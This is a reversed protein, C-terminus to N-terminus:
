EILFDEILQSALEYHDRNWLHGVEEIMEAKLNLDLKLLEKIIKPSPKTATIDNSGLIILIPQKIKKLEKKKLKKPQLKSIIKSGTMARLLLKYLKDNDDVLGAASDQLFKKKIMVNNSITARIVKFIYSLRVDCITAAPATLILKNVRDTNHITFMTAIFSGLSNGCIDVKHLKLGNLTEELWKNSDNIGKLIKIPESLGVQDILDICYVRRKNTFISIMPEWMASTAQAGPILVLPKGDKPGSIVVHTKGYSTDVWVDEYQVKWDKMIDNYAELFKEKNDNSNFISFHSIM